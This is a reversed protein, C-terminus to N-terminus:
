YISQITTLITMENKLHFTMTHTHIHTQKHEGAKNRSQILTTRTNYIIYINKVALMLSSGMRHYTKTEVPAKQM